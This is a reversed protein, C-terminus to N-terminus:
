RRNERHLPLQYALDSQRLKRIRRLRSTSSKAPHKTIPPPGIRSPTQRFRRRIKLESVPIPRSKTVTRTTQAPGDSGVGRCRTRDGTRSRSNTVSKPMHPLPELRIGYEHGRLTCVPTFGVLDPFNDRNTRLPNHFAIVSFSGCCSHTVWAECCDSGISAAEREFLVESLVGYLLGFVPGTVVTAHGALMLAVGAGNDTL